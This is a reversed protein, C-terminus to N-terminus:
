FSKRYHTTSWSIRNCKLHKETKNRHDHLQTTTNGTTQGLKTNPQMQHKRKRSLSEADNHKETIESLCAKAAKQDMM